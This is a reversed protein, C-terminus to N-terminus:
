FKNRHLQGKESWDALAPLIDVSGCTHGSICV